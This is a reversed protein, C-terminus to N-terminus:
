KIGFYFMSGTEHLQKSVKFLLLAYKILDSENRLLSIKDASFNKKESSKDFKFTSELENVNKLVIDFCKDYEAISIELFENVYYIRLDKESLRTKKLNKNLEEQNGLIENKFQNMSITIKEYAKARKDIIEKMDGFDEPKIEPLGGPPGSGPPPKAMDRQKKFNNLSSNIDAQIKNLEIEQESIEKGAIVKGSASDLPFLRSAEECNSPPKIMQTYVSDFNIKNQAHSSSNSIISSFLSVLFVAIIKNM